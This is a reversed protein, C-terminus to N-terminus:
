GMRNTSVSFVCRSSVEIKPANCYRKHNEDTERNGKSHSQIVVLLHTKM